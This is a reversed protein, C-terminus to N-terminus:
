LEWTLRPQQSTANEDVVFFDTTAKLNKDAIDGIQYPTHMVVLNPSLILTSIITVSFLIGSLIWFNASFRKKLSIDSPKTNMLNLRKYIKM